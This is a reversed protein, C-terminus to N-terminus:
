NIVFNTIIPYNDSFTIAKETNYNIIKIYKSTYLIYDLRLFFLKGKYSNGFGNGQQLFADDLNKRLKKYNNTYPPENMDGVLIVPYSSNSIFFNINDIEKSRELLGRKLQYYSKKINNFSTNLAMSKLHVNIIRITDDNILVDTFVGRNHDNGGFIIEGKNLIPFKSLILVGNIPRGPKKQRASYHYFYDNNKLFSEFTNFINSSSDNYFEQICKIDVDIKSLYDKMALGSRNLDKDKYKEPDNKYYNNFFGANFSMLTFGKEKKIPNNNIQYYNSTFLIYIILFFINAINYMYKKWILSLITSIIILLLSFPILYAIFGLIWLQTVDVLYSIYLTLLIFHLVLLTINKM